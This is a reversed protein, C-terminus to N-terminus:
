AARRELERLFEDTKALTLTSWFVDWDVKSTPIMARWCSADWMKQYTYSNVNMAVRGPLMFLAHPFRILIFSRGGSQYQRIHWNIQDRNMGYRTVGFVAATPDRRISAVKLEIWGEAGEICYNVDPM